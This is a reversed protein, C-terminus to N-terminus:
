GEAGAVRMRVVTGQSDNGEFRLTGESQEVVWYMLRLGLGTVHNLPSEEVLDLAIIESEPIGDGTDAISIEVGGETGDLATASVAVTLDQPDNHVVANELAETVVLQLRPHARDPAHASLDTTVTVEPYTSTLERVCHVVHETPEPNVNADEARVRRLRYANESM